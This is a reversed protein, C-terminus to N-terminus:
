ATMNYGYIDNGFSPRYMFAARGYRWGGEFPCYVYEDAWGGTVPVTYFDAAYYGLGNISATRVEGTPRLRIWIQTGASPLAYPGNYCNAIGSIRVHSDWVWAQAPSAAVLTSATAAGAVAAAVALRARLRM